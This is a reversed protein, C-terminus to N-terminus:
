ICGAQRKRVPLSPTPHRMGIGTGRMLPSIYHIELHSGGTPPKTNIFTEYAIYELM